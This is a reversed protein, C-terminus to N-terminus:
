RGLSNRVFKQALKEGERVLNQVTESRFSCNPWNMPDASDLGGEKAAAEILSNVTDVLQQGTQADAFPLNGMIKRATSAYWYLRAITASSITTPNGVMDREQWSSGVKKVDIVGAIEKMIQAFPEFDSEETLAFRRVLATSYDTFTGSEAFCGSMYLNGKLKGQVAENIKENDMLVSFHEMEVIVDYKALEEKKETPIVSPEVVNQKKGKFKEILRLFINM